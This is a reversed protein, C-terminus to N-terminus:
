VPGLVDSIATDNDFQVEGPERGGCDLVGRAPIYCNMTVIASFQVSTVNSWAFKNIQEGFIWAM